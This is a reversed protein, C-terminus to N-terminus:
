KLIGYTYEGPPLMFRPAPKGAELAVVDSPIADDPQGAPRAALLAKGESPLLHAPVERATFGALTQLWQPRGTQPDVPYRQHFVQMDVAFRYPTFVLPEGRPARLVFPGSRRAHELAKDYLRHESAKRTHAIMTTQDITLPDIGTLHKLQAGMMATGSGHGIRPKETLHGYGVFIFM